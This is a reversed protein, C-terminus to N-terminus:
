QFKSSIKISQQEAFNLFLVCSTSKHATRLSSPSELFRPSAPPIWEGRSMAAPFRVVCLLFPLVRISGCRLYIDTRIESTQHVSLETPTLITFHVTRPPVGTRDKTTDKGRIKSRWVIAIPWVVGFKLCLAYDRACPWTRFPIRNM